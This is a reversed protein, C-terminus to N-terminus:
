KAVLKGDVLTGLSEQTEIDFVEGDETKYYTKGDIEIEEVYVEEDEEESEEVQETENLFRRPLPKQKFYQEAVKSVEEPSKKGADLLKREYEEPSMWENEKIWHERQEDLSVKGRLFELESSMEKMHGDLKELDEGMTKMERKQATIMQHAKGLQEKFAQASRKALDAAVGLANGVAGTVMQSTPSPGRAPPEVSQNLFDQSSVVPYEQQASGPLNVWGDSNEPVEAIMAPVGRFEWSVEDKCHPNERIAKEPQPRAGKGPRRLTYRNPYKPHDPGNQTIGGCKAPGLRAAHAKAEELTAYGKRPSGVVYNKIYSGPIAKSWGPTTEETEFQIERLERWRARYEMSARRYPEKEEDTMVGWLEGAKAAVQTVIDRGTLEVGKDTFYENQITSRRDKENLWLLFPPQPTQMVPALAM